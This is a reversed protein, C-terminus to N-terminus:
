RPDHLPGVTIKDAIRATNQLYQSFKVGPIKTDVTSWRAATNSRPLLSPIGPKRIPPAAPLYIHILSEAQPTLGDALAAEEARLKFYDGLTLGLGGVLGAFLFERRSTQPLPAPDEFWTM